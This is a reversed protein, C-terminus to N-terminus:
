RKCDRQEGTAEQREQAAGGARGRRQEVAAAQLHDGLPLEVRAQEFRGHRRRRQWTRRPHPDKQGGTIFAVGRTAVRHQVEQVAGATAGLVPRGYPFGLLRSGAQGQDYCEQWRHLLNKAALDTAVVLAHAKPAGPQGIREDPIVEGDYALAFRRKFLIFLGWAVPLILFGCIYCFRSLALWPADEM